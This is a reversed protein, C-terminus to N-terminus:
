GGLVKVRKSRVEDLVAVLGQDLQRGGELRSGKSGRGKSKIWSVGGLWPQGIKLEGGRGM